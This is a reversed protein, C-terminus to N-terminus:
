SNKREALPKVTEDYGILPFRYRATAIDLKDSLLAMVLRLGELSEQRLPSSDQSGMSLFILDDLLSTLSRAEELAAEASFHRLCLPLSEATATPFTANSM